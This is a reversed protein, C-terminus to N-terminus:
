ICRLTHDGKPARRQDFNFAQECGLGFGPALESRCERGVDLDWTNIIALRFGGPPMVHDETAKDPDFTIQVSSVCARARIAAVLAPQPYPFQRSHPGFLVVSYGDRRPNDAYEWTGQAYLRVVSDLWKPGYLDPWQDSFRLHAEIIGGGITELNLMGTYDPLSAAVWDTCYAALAPRLRAEITWYDFTGGPAPRGLTHRSWCVRGSVVALDTSVHEGELLSMWMFGPQECALYEDRCNLVRSGVGMGKLNIAPKSFVPYREPEIGHPACAIGQSEAVLLKNYLWRQRPYWRYADMDDTPIHIDAPCAVQGFYQLRWSDREHIPM